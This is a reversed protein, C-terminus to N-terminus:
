CRFKHLRKFPQFLRIALFAVYRFDRICTTIKLCVTKHNCSTRNYLTHLQESDSIANIVGPSKSFYSKMNEAAVTKKLSERNTSKTLGNATHSKKGEKM